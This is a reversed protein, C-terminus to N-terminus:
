DLDPCTFTNVSHVRFLQMRLVLVWPVHNFNSPHCYSKLKLLYGSSRSIQIRDPYSAHRNEVM